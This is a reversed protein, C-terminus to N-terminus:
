RTCTGITTYWYFRKTPTSTKTELLWILIYSWHNKVSWFSSQLVFTTSSSRLPIRRYMWRGLLASKIFVKFTRTRHLSSLSPFHSRQYRGAKSLGYVGFCCSLKPTGASFHQLFDRILAVLSGRHMIPRFSRCGVRILHRM